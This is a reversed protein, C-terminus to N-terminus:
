LISTKETVWGVADFRQCYILKLIVKCHNMKNLRIGVSVLIFKNVPGKINSGETSQSQEIYLLQM